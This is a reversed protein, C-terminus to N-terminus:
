QRTILRGLLPGFPGDAWDSPGSKEPGAWFPGGNPWSANAWMRQTRGTDYATCCDFLPVVPTNCYVYRLLPSMRPSPLRQIQHPSHAITYNAFSNTNCSWHSPPTCVGYSLFWFIPSFFSLDQQIHEEVRNRVKSPSKTPSPGAPPTESYCYDTGRRGM